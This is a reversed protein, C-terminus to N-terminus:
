KKGDLMILACSPRKAKEELYFHITTDDWGSGENVKFLVMKDQSLDELTMKTNGFWTVKAGKIWSACETKTFWAEIATNDTLAQYVRSPQAKIRILHRITEM